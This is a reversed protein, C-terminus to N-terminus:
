KNSRDQFILKNDYLYKLVDKANKNLAYLFPEYGNFYIGGLYRLHEKNFEKKHEELLQINSNPIKFIFNLMELRKFYPNNDFGEISSQNLLLNYLIEQEEKVFFNFNYVFEDFRKQFEDRKLKRKLWSSHIYKIIGLFNFHLNLDLM